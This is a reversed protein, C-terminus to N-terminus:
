EMYQKVLADFEDSSHCIRREGSPLTVNCMTGGHAGQGFLGYVKGEFADFVSKWEGKEDTKEVEMFCKNLKQNYHNMFSAAEQRAWGLKLFEERAQKACREQLDLSATKSMSEVKASLEQVQRRQERLAATQSYLLLGLVAVFLILLIIAANRM